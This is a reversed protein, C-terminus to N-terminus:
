SGSSPSFFFNFDADADREDPTGGRRRSGAVEELSGRVRILILQAFGLAFAHGWSRRIRQTYLSKATSHATRFLELHKSALQTAVLDAVLHVESSAEGTFGVVLGLVEGDKGYENLISKFTTADGPQHLEADLRTAHRTYEAKVEAQRRNVAFGFETSNTQYLNVRANLTKTDALHDCGALPHDDSSASRLQILLDPIIGNIKKNMDEDLARAPIADRFVDKCTRDSSGGLHPIGAEKLSRSFIGSIKNHNQQIHGGTLGRARLLTHGHEDVVTPPNQRPNTKIPKGVHARLAPVPVGFHVAVATTWEARSFRLGPVPLGSFLSKPFPDKSNAFFVIRRPDSIQLAAARQTLVRFSFEQREEMIRKHLKVVNAGFGEIPADFISPPQDEDAELVIQSRLDLNIKKAREYEGRFDAAISSGSSLFFRWRDNTNDDDFSGAGLFQVAHEHFLGPVVNGGEKKDILQPLVGVLTNLYLHRDSLLSIGAGGLRAPLQARDATFTPDPLNGFRPAHNTPGPLDASALLDTGFVTAFAWQLKEDIKACFQRTLRPPLAGAWFDARHQCSYFAMAFAAHNSRSSISSILRHIDECISEANEQLKALIYYDDGM